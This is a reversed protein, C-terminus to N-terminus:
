EFLRGLYFCLALICLYIITVIMKRKGKDRFIGRALPHFWSDPYTFMRSILLVLMPFMVLAVGIKIYINEM